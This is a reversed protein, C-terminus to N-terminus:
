FIGEKADLDKGYRTYNYALEALRHAADYSLGQRMLQLEHLEHNLLVIDMEQINNGEILRQWSVAMDNLGTNRAIAKVDSKRRRIEEYYRGAHEDMRVNDNRPIAGSAKVFDM